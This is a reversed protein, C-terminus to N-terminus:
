RLRVRKLWNLKFEFAYSRRLLLSVLTKKEKVNIERKFNTYM